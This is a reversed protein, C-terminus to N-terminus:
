RGKGTEKTFWGTGKNGKADAYYYSKAGEYFKYGTETGTAATKEYFYFKDNNYAKHSSGNGDIYETVTKYPGTARELYYGQTDVTAVKYYM